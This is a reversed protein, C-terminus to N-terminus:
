IETHIASKDKCLFWIPFTEVVNCPLCFVVKEIRLFITSISAFCVKESLLIIILTSDDKLLNYQSMCFFFFFFFSSICLTGPRQLFFLPLYFFIYFLYFIFYFPVDQMIYDGFQRLQSFAFHVMQNPIKGINDIKWDFLMKQEDTCYNLTVITYLTKEKKNRQM